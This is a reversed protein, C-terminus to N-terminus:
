GGGGFAIRAGHRRCTITYADDFFDTLRCRWGLVVHTKPPCSDQDCIATTGFRRSFTAAVAVATACRGPPVETLEAGRVLVHCAGPLDPTPEVDAVYRAPVWAPMPDAQASVTQVPPYRVPADDTSGGCGALVAVAILLSLTLLPVRRGHRM